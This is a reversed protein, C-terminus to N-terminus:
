LFWPMCVGVGAQTNCTKNQQELVGLELGPKIHMDQHMHSGLCAFGFEVQSVSGIMDQDAAGLGGLELGPTIQM